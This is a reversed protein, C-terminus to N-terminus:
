TNETISPCFQMVVMNHRMSVDDKKICVASTDM